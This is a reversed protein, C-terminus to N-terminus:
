TAFGGFLTHHSLRLVVFTGLSIAGGALSYEGLALKQRGALIAAFPLFSTQAQFQRVEEPGDAFTRRDQHVASTVAYVVFGGFFIWDGEHPNVLCHAAGFLAFGLNMPHRTIRQIGRARDLYKGTVDALTTMPSLTTFAQGLILLAFFM